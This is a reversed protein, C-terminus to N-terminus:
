LELVASAGADTCRRYRQPYRCHRDGAIRFIGGAGHNRHGDTATHLGILHGEAYERKLLGQGLPCITAGRTQVFFLAKIGPQVPNRALDALVSETPNMYNMGSPGDDFTLLFRIPHAIPEQMAVPPASMSACGSLALGCALMLPASVHMTLFRIRSRRAIFHPMAFPRYPRFHPTECHNRCSNAAACPRM